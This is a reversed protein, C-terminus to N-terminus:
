VVFVLSIHSVDIDVIHKYAWDLVVHRLSLSIDIVSVARVVLAIEFIIQGVALAFKDQSIARFVFAGEGLVDKFIAGIVEVM